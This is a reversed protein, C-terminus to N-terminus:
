QGPSSSTEPKQGILIVTTGLVHQECHIHTLGADKMHQALTQPRAFAKVSQPLYTYAARDGTFLQGIVPVLGFFYLYFLQSMPFRRPWSMELCVVRGRPRVVRAQEALATAVDPVNRMLFASIVADFTDDPYPLAQGDGCTWYPPRSESKQQAQMLMAATPDLGVVCCDPCHAQANLAVDGTGTGVDLLLADSPLQALRLAQTRLRQDQGMSILRNVFDYHPAIRTFLDRISRQQNHQESKTM